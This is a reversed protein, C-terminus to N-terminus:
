QKKIGFGIIELKPKPKPPASENTASADPVDGSSTTVRRAWFLGPGWDIRNGDDSVKGFTVRSGSLFSVTWYSLKANLTKWGIPGKNELAALTLQGDNQTVRIHHGGESVWLGALQPQQFSHAEIDATSPSANFRSWVGGWTWRIRAGDQSVDGFEVRAGFIASIREEDAAQGNVTKWGVPGKNELAKITLKKGDRTILWHNGNEDSYLGSVTFPEGPDPQTGGTDTGSLGEGGGADGADGAGNLSGAGAPGEELVADTDQTENSEDTQLTDDAGNPKPEGNGPGGSDSGDGDDAETRSDLYLKWTGITPGNLTFSGEIVGNKLTGTYIQSCPGSYGQGTCDRTLTVTNGDIRGTLPDNRPGPCCTWKSLGNIRGNVVQLQWTSSYATPCWVEVRYAGSVLLDALSAGPEDTTPPDSDATGPEANTAGSSVVPEYIGEECRLDEVGGKVFSTQTITGLQSNGKIKWIRARCSSGAATRWEVECLRSSQRTFAVSNPVLTQNHLDLRGSYHVTGHPPRGEADAFSFHFIKFLLENKGRPVYVLFGTNYGDAQNGDYLISHDVPGISGGNFTVPPSWEATGGKWYSSLIELNAPAGRAQFRNRERGLTGIGAEGVVLPRTEKVEDFNSGKRLGLKIEYEGDETFKHAVGTRGSGIYKGGVYWRYETIGTANKIKAEFGVTSGIPYVNTEPIFGIAVEMDPPYEVSINKIIADNEKPDSSEMVLQVYHRGPTTCKHRCSEGTGAEKGDVFWKFTYQSHPNKKQVDEKFIIMDELQYSYEDPEAKIGISALPYPNLEVRVDGGKAMPTDPPPTQSVVAGPPHAPNNRSAESVILNLGLAGTLHRAEAETKGILDPVKVEGSVQVVMSATRNGWTARVMASGDAVATVVGSNKDVQAINPADSEWTVGSPLPQTKGQGFLKFAKLKETAGMKPLLVQAPEIILGQLGAETMKVTIVKPTDAEKRTPVGPLRITEVPLTEYGPAEVVARYSLSTPELKDFRVEGAPAKEMTYAKSESATAIIKQGSKLTVTANKVAAGTDADEVVFTLKRRFPIVTIKGEIPDAVMWRQPGGHFSIRIPFVREQTPDSVPALTRSIFEACPCNELKAIEGWHGPFVEYEFEIWGYQRRGALDLLRVTIDVTDGPYNTVDLIDRPKWFRLEVAMRFYEPSYKLGLYGDMIKEPDLCHFGMLAQLEGKQSDTPLLPDSPSPYTSSQTAGVFFQWANQADALQKESPNKGGQKVIDEFIALQPLGNGGDETGKLCNEAWEIYLHDDEPDGNDNKPEVYSLRPGGDMDNRHSVAHIMEHWLLYPTAQAPETRLCLNRIHFPTGTVNDIPNAIYAQDGVPNTDYQALSGLSPKIIVKFRSHWFPSTMKDLDGISVWGQQIFKYSNYQNIFGYLSRTIEKKYKAQDANKEEKDIRKLISDLSGYVSSPAALIGALLMGIQILMPFRKMNM